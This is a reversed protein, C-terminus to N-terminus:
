LSKQFKFILPVTAVADVIVYHIELALPNHNWM